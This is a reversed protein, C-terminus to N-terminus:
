VSFPPNWDQNLSPNGIDSRCRFLGVRFRHRILIDAWGKNNGGEGLIPGVDRGSM